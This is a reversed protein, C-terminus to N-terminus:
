AAIVPKAQGLHPRGDVSELLVADVNKCMEEISPYLKVGFQSVLMETYRDVRDRSAPIDPSGGKFAAVVKGGPIHQPHKADNLIKTFAVVHSTDLGILGLQLEKKAHALTAACATLVAFLISKM